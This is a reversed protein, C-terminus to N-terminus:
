NFEKILTKSDPNLVWNYIAYKGIDGLFNSSDTRLFINGYNGNKSLDIIIPTGAFINRGSTRNSLTIDRDVIGVFFVYHDKSYNLITNIKYTNMERSNFKISRYDNSGEHKLIDAPKASYISDLTIFGTIDNTIDDMKGSRNLIFKCFDEDDGATCNADYTVISPTSGIYVTGSSAKCLKSLFAHDKHYDSYHGRGVWCLALRVAQEREEDFATGYHERVAEVITDIDNPSLAITGIEYPIDFDYLENWDQSIRYLVLAMNTESWGEYQQYNKGFPFINDGKDICCDCDFIDRLYKICDDRVFTNEGMDEGVVYLNLGRMAPQSGQLDFLPSNSGGTLSATKPTTYDVPNIANNHKGKLKDGYGSNTYDYGAVLPIYKEDPYMNCLGLQENTASYVIGLSHVNIHGGCYTYEHGQCNRTYKDTHQNYFNVEATYKYQTKYDYETRTEAVGYDTEHTVKITKEPNAWYYTVTRSGTTVQRTQQNKYTVSSETFTLLEYWVHTFSNRESSLIYTDAGINSPNSSFTNWETVLANYADQKAESVSDCWGGTVSKINQVTSSNTKSWCAGANVRNKIETLTTLNSGMSDWICPLKADTYKDWTLTIDYVGPQSLDYVVSNADMLYPFVHGSISNYALPFKKKVPHLCLGLKSADKQSIESAGVHELTGNVNIDIGDAVPYYEVEMSVQQTHSLTFLQTAYNQITAYSCTGVYISMDEYKEEGGVLNKFFVGINHGLAKFVAKITDWAHEWDLQAPSKGLISGLSNDDMGDMDFQYMVDVMAIIDKINCTHGSETSLTGTYGPVPDKQGFYNVNASINTTLKGDYATVPTLYGSNSNTTSVLDGAQWFPNIYMNNGDLIINNIGNQIYDTFTQYNIGYQLTDRNNYIEEPDEISKLWARQGYEPNNMLYDYLKYCVTDEYDKPGLLGDIITFPANLLSQITTLIIVAGALIGWATLLVLFFTVAAKVALAIIKAKLKKFAMYIKNEAFKKGIRAKFNRFKAGLRKESRVLKKLKKEQKALFKQNAKTNVEGLKKIEPKRKELKPSKGKLNGKDYGIRKAKRADISLKAAQKYQRVSTVTSKVYRPMSAIKQLDSIAASLEEDEAIKLYGSMFTHFMMGSTGVKAGWSGKANLDAIMNATDRSIGLRKLQTNTLKRLADTNFIGRNNVFQYGANAAKEIFRRNIELVSRRDITGNFFDIGLEDHLRRMMQRTQTFMAQERKSLALKGEQSLLNDLTKKEAETLNIRNKEAAKKLELLADTLEYRVKYSVFLEAQGMSSLTMIKQIADKQTSSATLMSKKLIDLEDATLKNKDWISKELMKKKEDTTLNLSDTDIEISIEINLATQETRMSRVIDDLLGGSRSAHSVVTDGVYEQRLMGDLIAASNARITEIPTKGLVTGIPELASRTKQLNQEAQAIRQDHQKLIKERRKEDTVVVGDVIVINNNLVVAKTSGGTHLTPSAEGNIGLAQKFMASNPDDGSRSDIGFRNVEFINKIYDNVYIFEGLEDLYSTIAKMTRERDLPAVERAEAEVQHVEEVQTLYNQKFNEILEQASVTKMRYAPTNGDPAPKGEEPMMPIENHRPIEALYQGNLKIPTVVVDVGQERMSQAFAAADSKTRFAVRTYKSPDYNGAEEYRSKHEHLRGFAADVEKNYYDAVMNNLKASAYEVTDRGIRLFDGGQV